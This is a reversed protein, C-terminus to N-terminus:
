AWAIGFVAVLVPFLVDRCSANMDSDTLGLNCKFLKVKGMKEAYAKMVVKEAADAGSSLNQHAQGAKHQTEKNPSDGRHLM